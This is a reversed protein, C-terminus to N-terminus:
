LCVRGHGDRQERYVQVGGEGIGPPGRGTSLVSPPKDVRNQTEM